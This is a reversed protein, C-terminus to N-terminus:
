FDDWLFGWSNKKLFWVKTTLLVAIVKNCWSRWLIRMPLKNCCISCETFSKTVTNYIFIYIKFTTKCLKQLFFHLQHYSIGQAPERTILLFEDVPVAFIAYTVIQASSFSNKFFPESTKLVCPWCFFRLCNNWHILYM